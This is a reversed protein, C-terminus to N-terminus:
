LFYCEEIDVTKAGHGNPTTQPENDDDLQKYHKGNKFKEKERINQCCLIVVVSVASLM